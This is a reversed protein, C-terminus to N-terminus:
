LDEKDEKEQPAPKSPQMGSKMSQLVVSLDVGTAKAVRQASEFFLIQEKERQSIIQEATTNHKKAISDLTLIGAAYDNLDAQRDKTDDVTFEDPHTFEIVDTLIEEKGKPQPPLQKNKIAKAIAWAIIFKGHYDLLKQRRKISANFLSVVNSNMKGTVDDPSFLLAHPVRLCGLVGKELREIYDSTEKETISAAPFKIDGGIASVYRITVDDVVRLGKTANGGSLGPGFGALNSYPNLPNTQPAPTANPNQLQWMRQSAFSEEDPGEGEPTKEILAYMSQIKLKENMYSEIEQISLAQLIGSAITPIGRGRDPFRPEYILRANNVSLYQSKVGGSFSANVLNELNQVCYAVPSGQPTYVVGDSTITDPYPGPQARDSYGFPNKTLSRIRHAPILQFKDEGFLLLLDGDVDVTESIIGMVSQFDIGRTCCNHYFLEHIYALMENGWAEHQGFYRTRYADGVTFDSHTKIATYIWPQQNAMERSLRMVLDRSYQSVGTESDQNIYTRPRFKGVNPFDYISGILNTARIGLPKDKNSSVLAM